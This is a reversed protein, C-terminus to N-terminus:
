LHLLKGPMAVLLCWSGPLFGPKGSKLVGATIGYDRHDSFLAWIILSGNAGVIFFHARAPDHPHLFVCFLKPTKHSDKLFMPKAPPAEM